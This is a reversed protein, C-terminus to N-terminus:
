SRLRKPVQYRNWASLVALWPRLAAARIASNTKLYLTLRIRRCGRRAKLEYLSRGFYMRRFGAEVADHIPRYHALNFYTFNNGARDHDIGILPLQAVGNACLMLSVSTICGENRCVYVKAQDGLNAKLESFFSARFGFPKQNHRRANLELVKHLDENTVPESGLEFIEAGSKYFRNIQRRIDKRAGRTVTNLHSLYEDFSGWAIDLYSLPVHTSPLYGRRRLEAVLETEEDVVHPFAVWRGERWAESEIADLLLRALLLRRAPDAEPEILLHRGYGFPPGCVWAPLLSPGLKSVWPQLRGFVLDDVTEVQPSAHMLACPSAAVLAGQADRLVVYRGQQRSLSTSEVTRIWGHGAM